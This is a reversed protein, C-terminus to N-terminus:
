ARQLKEDREHSWTDTGADTDRHARTDTQLRITIPM